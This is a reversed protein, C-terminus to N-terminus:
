GPGEMYVDNVQIIDGEIACPHTEYVFGFEECYWALQAQRNALADDVTSSDWGLAELWTRATTMSEEPSPSGVIFLGAFPVVIVEAMGVPYRLFGGDANVSPPCHCGSM